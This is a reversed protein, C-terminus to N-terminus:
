TTLQKQAEYLAESAAHTAREYERLLPGLLDGLGVAFEKAEDAFSKVRNVIWERTPPYVLAAALLLVLGIWVGPPIKRMQSMLSTLSKALAVLGSASIALATCTGAKITFEVAAERGYTCLKAIVMIGAVRGGMQAIDRDNSLIKAELQSQLKLYPVDKPDQYGAEAGGIDVFSILGRYASWHTELEELLLNEELALSQIRATVEQELFTPAFARVTKAQMVELLQPRAGPNKRKLALWRLDAIVASADLIISVQFIPGLQALPGGEEFLPRLNDLTDSSIAPQASQSM